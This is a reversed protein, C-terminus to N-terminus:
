NIRPILVTPRKTWVAFIINSTKILKAIHQLMECKVHTYVCVCVRTYVLYVSYLCFVDTSIHQELQIMHWFLVHFNACQIVTGSNAHTVCQCYDLNHDSYGIGKCSNTM